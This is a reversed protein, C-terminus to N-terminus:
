TAGSAEIIETLTKNKIKNKNNTAYNLFKIMEESKQKGSGETRIFKDDKAYGPRSGDASPQVLMGGDM